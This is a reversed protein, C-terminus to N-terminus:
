GGAPTPGTEPHCIGRNLRLRPGTTWAPASPAGAPDNPQHAWSAAEPQASCGTANGSDARAGSSSRAAADGQTRKTLPVHRRTEVAKSQPRPPDHALGQRGRRCRNGPSGRGQRPDNRGRCSCSARPLDRRSRAHHVAHDQASKDALASTEPAMAWRQGPPPLRRAFLICAM